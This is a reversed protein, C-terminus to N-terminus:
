CLQFEEGGYLIQLRPDNLAALEERLEELFQPKMHFIGVPVEPRDFKALEAGLLAPTLHGSIRALEELRNPFSTEIFALKLQPCDHALEWLAETTTTDGSYLFGAEASHLCYGVTHVPHATRAWRVTLGAIECVGAAPLPCLELIPAELSPLRTFDPWTANNFLHRRLDDLVPQPAWVRLPRSRIPMINDVMFALDVTHDLHAHTLLVDEIAMQEDQELVSTVTGADVLLRDNLLLGSTHIGPVRSGFSGLVRIKIM